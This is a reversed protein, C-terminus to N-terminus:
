SIWRYKSNAKIGQFLHLLKLLLKKALKLPPSSILSIPLYCLLIKDQRVGFCLYKLDLGGSLLSIDWLKLYM